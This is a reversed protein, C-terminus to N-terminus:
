CSGDKYLVIRGERKTEKISKCMNIIEVAFDKAKDLMISEAMNDCGILKNWSFKSSFNLALNDWKMRYSFLEKPTALNFESKAHSACKAAM